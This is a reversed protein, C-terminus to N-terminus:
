HQEQEADHATDGRNQEDYLLHSGAGGSPRHDKPTAQSPHIESMSALPTGPTPLSQGAASPLIVIPMGDDASRSPGSSPRRGCVIRGDASMHAGTM